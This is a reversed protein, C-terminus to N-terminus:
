VNYNIQLRSNALRGHITVLRDTVREGSCNLVFIPPSSSQSYPKNVHLYWFFPIDVNSKVLLRSFACRGYMTSRRQCEKEQDHDCLFRYSNAHFLPWGSIHIHTHTHKSLYIYVYLYLYLYIFIYVYMYIYGCVCVYIYIYIYTYIYIYIYINSVRQVHSLRATPSDIGLCSNALQGHINLIYEVYVCIIV